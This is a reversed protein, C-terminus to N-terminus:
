KKPFFDHISKNSHIFVGKSSLKANHIMAKALQGAPMGKINKLFGIMMFNFIKLFFQVISEFFRIESRKGILFYPRFIHLVEFGIKILENETKGKLKLYTFWSSPSAGSSSLYLFKKVKNHHAIKAINICYDYEVKQYEESKPTKSKTTGLCYYLHDCVFVNWDKHIDRFDVIKTELKDHELDLFRRVVLTVKTYTEDELLQKTLEAGILGNAGIVIAHIDKSM